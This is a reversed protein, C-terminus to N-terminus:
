TFKGQSNEGDMKEKQASRLFFAVEEVWPLRQEPSLQRFARLRQDSVYYTRDGSIDLYFM